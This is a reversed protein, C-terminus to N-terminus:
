ITEYSLLLNLGLVVTTYQSNCVTSYRHLGQSPLRQRGGQHDGDIVAASIPQVGEEAEEASTISLRPKGLRPKNDGRVSATIGAELM